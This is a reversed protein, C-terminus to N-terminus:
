NKEVIFQLGQTLIAKRKENNIISYNGIINITFKKQKTEYATEANKYLPITKGNKPTIVIRAKKKSYKRISGSM